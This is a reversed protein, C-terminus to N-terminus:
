LPCIGINVIALVSPATNMLAVSETTGVRSWHAVSEDKILEQIQRRDAPRVINM